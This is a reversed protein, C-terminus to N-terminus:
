GSITCKSVQKAEQNAQIYMHYILDLDESIDLDNLGASKLRYWNFIMNFYNNDKTQILDCEFEKVTNGTATDIYECNYLNLNFGALILASIRTQEAGLTRGQVSRSDTSKNFHNTIEETKEKLSEETINTEDFLKVFGYIQVIKDHNDQIIKNIQLLIESM